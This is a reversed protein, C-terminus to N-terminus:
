TIRNCWHIIISEDVQKMAVSSTTHTRTVLHTQVSSFLTCIEVLSFTDV